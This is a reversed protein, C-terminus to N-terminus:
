KKIISPVDIGYAKSEGDTKVVGIAADSNVILSDNHSIVIFQAERSMEKILTSLKKANEKDLAADVEDFIYLSSKKGM